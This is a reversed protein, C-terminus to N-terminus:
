RISVNIKTKIKKILMTASIDSPTM